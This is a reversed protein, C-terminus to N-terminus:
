LAGSSVRQQQHRLMHAKRVFSKSCSPCNYRESEIKNPNLVLMQGTVSHNMERRTQFTIWSTQCRPYIRSKSKLTSIETALANCPSSTLARRLPLTNPVDSANASASVVGWFTSEVPYRPSPIRSSTVSVTTRARSSDLHLIQCRSYASCCPDRPSHEIVLKTAPSLPSGTPSGPAPGIFEPPKWASVAVLSSKGSAWRAMLWM